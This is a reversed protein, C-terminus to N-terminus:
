RWFNLRVHFLFAAVCCPPFVVSISGGSATVNTAVESEMPSSPFQSDAADSDPNPASQQVSNGEQDGGVTSGNKSESEKPSPLVTPPLKGSFNLPNSPLPPPAVIPVIHGGFSKGYVTSNFVGGIGHVAITEDLYLDPAIVHVGDLCIKFPKRKETVLVTYGPLMSYLVAGENFACLQNFDYRQLVTHYLFLEMQNLGSNQVTQYASDTPTFITVFQPLMWLNMGEIIGAMTAFLTSNRLAEVMKRIQAKERTEDM